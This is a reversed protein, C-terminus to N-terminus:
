LLNERKTQPSTAPKQAGAWAVGERGGAGGRRGVGWGGCVPCCDCRFKQLECCDEHTTQDGVKRPWRGKGEGKRRPMQLGRMASCSNGPVITRPDHTHDCTHMTKIDFSASIVCSKQSRFPTHVEWGKTNQWTAGLQNVCGCKGEVVSIKFTSGPGWQAAGLFLSRVHRHRGGYCPTRRNNTITDATKRAVPPGRSPWPTDASAARGSTGPSGRDRRLPSSSPPHPLVQQASSYDCHAASYIHDVTHPLTTAHHPPIFYPGLTPFILRWTRCFLM